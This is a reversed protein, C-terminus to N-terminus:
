SCSIGILKFFTCKFQTVLAVIISASLTVMWGALQRIWRPPTVSQGPEPWYRAEKIRVARTTSSCLLSIFGFALLVKGAALYSFTTNLATADKLDPGFNALLNAPVQLLAYVGAVVLFLLGPLGGWRAFFAWGLAGFAVTPVVMEPAYQLGKAFLNDPAGLENWGFAWITIFVAVLVTTGAAHIHKFANGRFYAVAAALFCLNATNGLIDSGINFETSDLSRGAKIYIHIWLYLFFLCTYGAFFFWFAAATSPYKNLLIAAPSGQSRAFFYLVGMIAIATGLIALNVDSHFSIASPM